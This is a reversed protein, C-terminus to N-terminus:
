RLKKVHCGAELLTFTRAALSKIAQDLVSVANSVWCERTWLLDCPQGSEVPSAVPSM